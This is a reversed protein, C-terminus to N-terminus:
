TSNNRPMVNLAKSTKLIVIPIPKNVIVTIGVTIRGAQM